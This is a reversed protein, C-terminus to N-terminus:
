IRQSDESKIHVKVGLYVVSDGESTIRWGLRYAEPSPFPVGAGFLDDIYRCVAASRPPSLAYAHAKEVPYCSLNAVQPAPPWGMPMGQVQRRLIGGNYTYNNTLSYTFLEQFLPRDYGAGMWSWGSPHIRLCHPTPADHPPPDQSAQWALAEDFSEMTRSIIDGFRFATYMTDFDACVMGHTVIEQKHTRVMQTFSGVSDIGWFAKVGETAQRREDKDRLAREIVQCIDVLAKNLHYLPQRPPGKQRQPAAEAMSSSPMLPSPSPSNRTGCIFRFKEKLPKWIGYNYPIGTGTPFCLRDNFARLEGLVADWPRCTVEFVKDDQLYAAMEKQYWRKCVFLVGHPARDDLIFVLDRQAERIQAKLGPYGEPRRLDDPSLSSRWNRLCRDQVAQSWSELAARCRLDQPKHSSAWTVYGDLGAKLEDFISDVPGELRYKKGKKSLSRLYPWRLATSDVSLVHGRVLHEPAAPHLAQQCRCHSLDDRLAAEADLEEAVKSYNTIAAQWQPNFKDCVMIAAAVEPNPHRTFVEPDRLVERLRLLRAQNHTYTVKLFHRSPAEAKRAKLVNILKTEMHLLGLRRDADPVHEQIWDLLDSLQQKPWQSLDHLASPDQSLSRSVWDAAVEDFTGQQPSPSPSQQPQQARRHVRSDVPYGPWASNFGHPWLTNLKATWYRERTHAIRRLVKKRSTPREDQLDPLKELPLMLFHFPTTDNAIAQHLLDPCRHRNWWHERTRDWILRITQGVYFRGTPFHFLTYIWGRTTWLADADHWPFSANAPDSNRQLLATRLSKNRWQSPLRLWSSRM